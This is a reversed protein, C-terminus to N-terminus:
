NLRRRRGHKTEPQPWAPAEKAIALGSAAAQLQAEQQALALKRQSAQLRVAELDVWEYGVGQLDELFARHLAIDEGYLPDFAFYWSGRSPDALFASIDDIVENISAGELVQHLKTSSLKVARKMEPVPVYLGSEMLAFKEAENSM